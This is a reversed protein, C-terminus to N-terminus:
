YKPNQSWNTILHSLNSDLLNFAISKTKLISRLLDNHLKACVCSYILNYDCWCCICKEFRPVSYFFPTFKDTLLWFLVYILFWWHNKVAPYFRWSHSSYCICDSYSNKSHSYWLWEEEPSLLLMSACIKSRQNLFRQKSPSVHSQIFSWYTTKSGVIVM